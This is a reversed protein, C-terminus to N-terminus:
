VNSSNHSACQLSTRPKLSMNLRDLLRKLCCTDLPCPAALTHTSHHRVLPSWAVSIGICMTALFRFLGVVAAQCICFLTQNFIQKIVFATPTRRRTVRPPRQYISATVHNTCAASPAPQWFSERSPLIDISGKSAPAFLALKFPHM